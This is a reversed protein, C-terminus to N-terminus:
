SQKTFTFKIAGSESSAGWYKDILEIYSKDIEIEELEEDSLGKLYDVFEKKTKFDKGLIENHRNKCPIRGESLRYRAGRQFM